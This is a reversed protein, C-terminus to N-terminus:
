VDFCPGFVVSNRSMDPGLSYSRHMLEVSHLDGRACSCRRMLSCRIPHIPHEETSLAYETAIHPKEIHPQVTSEGADVLLYEAASQYDYEIHYSALHETSRGVWM